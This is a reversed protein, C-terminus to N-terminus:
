FFWFRKFRIIKSRRALKHLKDKPIEADEYSCEIEKVLSKHDEIKLNRLFIRLKKRGYQRYNLEIIVMLNEWKQPSASLEIGLGRADELDSDTLCYALWEDLQKPVPETRMIKPGLDRGNAKPFFSKWMTDSSPDHYYAESKENDKHTMTMNNLMTTQRNRDLVYM